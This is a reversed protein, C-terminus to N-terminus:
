GAKVKGAVQSISQPIFTIVNGTAIIMAARSIERAITILGETRGHLEEVNLGYAASNPTIIVLYFGKM